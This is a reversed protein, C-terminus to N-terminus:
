LFIPWKDEVTVERIHVTNHLFGEGMYRLSHLGYWMCICLVAFLYMKSYVQAHLASVYM